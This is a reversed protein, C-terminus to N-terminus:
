SAAEAKAALGELIADFTPVIRGAVLAGMAMAVGGPLPVAQSLRSGAGRAAIECRFHLKTLPVGDSVLTFGRGEEVDQLAIQHHGGSKTEMKGTTGSAFPGDLDGSKMDTNWEPWSSTDSWVRWVRDPPASTERSRQNSEAMESVQIFKKRPADIATYAGKTKRTLSRGTSFDVDGGVGM